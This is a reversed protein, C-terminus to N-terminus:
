HIFLIYSVNQTHFPHSLGQARTTKEGSIDCEDPACRVAGRQVSPRTAQDHRHPQVVNAQSKMRRHCRHTAAGTRKHWLALVHKDPPHWDESIKRTDTAVKTAITLMTSINDPKLDEGQEELHELFKLVADGPQHAGHGRVESPGPVAFWQGVDREEVTADIASGYM